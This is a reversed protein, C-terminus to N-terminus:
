QIDFAKVIHSAEVPQGAEIRPRFMTKRLQRMLKSARREDIENNDVRELDRVRGRESVNFTLLIDADQPAVAPPLSNVAEFDPLAVPEGFLLTRNAKADDADALETEADQYAAWAAETRGNWLRWDGLMVMSRARSLADGPASEQKIDSLTALVANGQQYSKARYKSFRMLVDDPRGDEGFIPDSRRVEYSSILYQTQLMGLLPPLLSPSDDGERDIIDNLALRYLDWMNMLRVYSQTGELGLQYAEYQWKAQEMLAVSLQENDQLSRLQVRYLYNQREDAEAYDRQAKHSAIEAQLLPIQQACYLGENIRTLHAGRKLVDIAEDHRGQRQLVQGLGLLSESLGGAYAGGSSEIATIAQQYSQTDLSDDAARVPMDDQEQALAPLVALMMGLVLRRITSSISNNSM